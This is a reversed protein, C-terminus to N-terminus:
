SNWWACVGLVFMCGLIDARVTSAMQVYRLAVEVYGKYPEPLFGLITNLFGPPPARRKDLFFRTTLLMTEATAFVWFFMKKHEENADALPDTPNTEREREHKTGTFGTLLAIYVGLGLAVIAHLLRWLSTYPDSSVPQQPPQFPNPMGGPFPSASSPDNGQGPPPMGPLGGMGGMMQSMMKMFPDGEMGAPLSPTGAAPRDLGLMMQRLQEESMDQPLQATAPNGINSRKPTYHHDSIDVEEPDDHHDTSNRAAPTAAEPTPPTFTNDSYPLFITNALFLFSFAMEGSVSFGRANEPYM